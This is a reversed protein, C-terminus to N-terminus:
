QFIEGNQTLICAGDAIGIAEAEDDGCVIGYKTKVYDIADQKLEERKKKGISLGIASRWSSPLIKNFGIDLVQCIYIIAGIIYSLKITTQINSANWTNEVFLVDPNHKKLIHGLERMMQPIRSDTDKNSSLDIVTHFLLTDENRICIGTKRTSADIGCFIM